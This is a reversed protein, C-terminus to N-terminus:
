SNIWNMFAMEIAKDNQNKSKSEDIRQRGYARALLDEYYDKSDGHAAQTARMVSLEERAKLKEM